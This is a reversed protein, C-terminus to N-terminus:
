VPKDLVLIHKEPEVRKAHFRGWSHNSRLPRDAVERWNYGDISLINNLFLRIEPDKVALEHIRSEIRRLRPFLDRHVSVRKGLYDERIINAEIRRRTAGDYLLDYFAIHYPKATSRRIELVRANLQEIREASFTDPHPVKKPYLYEIYPHWENIRHLENRPLLRGEAWYLRTGCVTIYWDGVDFDYDIDTIKDPYATLLSRLIIHPNDPKRQAPEATLGSLTTFLFIGTFCLARYFM